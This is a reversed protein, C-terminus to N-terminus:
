KLANSKNFYYLFYQWTCHRRPFRSHMIYDSILCVTQLRLSGTGLSRTLYVMELFNSSTIHWYTNIDALCTPIVKGGLEITNCWHWHETLPFSWCYKLFQGLQLHIMKTVTKKLIANCLLVSFCCSSIWQWKNLVPIGYSLQECWCTEWIYQM